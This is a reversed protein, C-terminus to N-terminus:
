RRGPPDDPDNGRRRLYEDTERREWDAGFLGGLGLLVLGTFIRKGQVSQRTEEWPADM